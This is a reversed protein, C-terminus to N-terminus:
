KEKTEDIKGSRADVYVEYVRGRDDLVRFEYHWRGNKREIEIGVVDGPLKGRIEKLIEALPLVEGSEVAHRVEDQDSPEAMAPMVFLLGVSATSFLLSRTFHAFMPWSM